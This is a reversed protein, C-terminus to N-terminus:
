GSRDIQRRLERLYPLAALDKARGATEKSTIIDDLSAVSTEAEDVLHVTVARPLLEDYGGDFGSPVFTLDVDGAVTVLNLMRPQAALFGADIPFPVGDPDSDVRLRADLERLAAALRELNATRRNPTIDVDATALSSGHAVAALGGVLVFEVGHQHLVELIRVPDFGSV